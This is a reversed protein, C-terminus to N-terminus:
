SRRFVKGLMGGVDDLVSGDRNQDLFPALMDLMGGGQGAAAAMGAPGGTSRQQSLAGMMLSAALPLLQKMVDAGLGTQAAARSAIERSVEKSGLLHGLIGNGDTVAAPNAIASPDELYRQHSGTSLASVLAGLGDPTQTNRQLGAALAPLLASLASATQTEGLGLQSGVQRVAAGNQANTIVDLINM